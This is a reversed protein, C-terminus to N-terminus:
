DDIGIDQRGLLDQWLQVLVVETSNTPAQQERPAPAEPVPLARRDIKGHTTRPLQDLRVYRAPIMYDPLRAALGIKLAADTPIPDHPGAQWYAALYRRGNEECLLVHADAIGPLQRLAAEIEGPEIRYGRLKIQQDARGLYEVVGDPRFRVRDGTRYLRSGDAAFPDPLFREGSLDARGHYGRALCPGGIYLEGVAGLPLPNLDADLIYLTREGLATGIPAYGTLARNDAQWALPTIVTETPGYGNIITEPRLGARIKALAASSVAEGGVCAIRLALTQGRAAVADALHLLASTPPYIVSVAHAMLAQLTDEGTWGSFGLVVGAGHCLPALWQEMGADFTFAAFHLARDAPTYRYLAGAAQIHKTLAGHAVAVCKPQ